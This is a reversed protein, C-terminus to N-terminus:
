YGTVSTKILHEIWTVYFYFAPKFEFDDFPWGECGPVGTETVGVKFGYERIGRCFVSECLQLLGSAQHSFRAESIAGSAIAQVFLRGAYFFPAEAADWGLEDDRHGTREFLGLRRMACALMLEGEIHSLLVIFDVPRIAALTLDRLSICSISTMAAGEFSPVQGMPAFDWLPLFTYLM